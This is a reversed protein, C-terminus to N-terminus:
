PKRKKARRRLIARALDLVHARERETWERDGIHYVFERLVIIDHPIRM